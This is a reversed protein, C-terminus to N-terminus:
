EGGIAKYADSALGGIGSLDFALGVEVQWEPTYYTRVDPPKTDMGRPVSVRDGIKYDQPFPIARISGGATVVLGDAFRWGLRLNWQKFANGSTGTTLSPGGALLYKDQFYYGLLLSTSIVDTPNPTRQMEYIQDPGDAGHVPRFEPASMTDFGGDHSSGNYVGLGGSVEALLTFTGRRSPTLSVRAKVEKDDDRGTCETGACLAVTLKHDRGVSFIYARHELNSSAPLDTDLKLPTKHDEDQPRCLNSRMATSARLGAAIREKLAKHLADLDEETITESANKEEHLLGKFARGQFLKMQKVQHVALGKINSLGRKVNGMLPLLQPIGQGVITSFLVATTLTTREGQSEAFKIRQGYPIATVLLGHKSKTEAHEVPPTIRQGYDGHHVDGDVIPLSAVTVLRPARPLDLWRYRQVRECQSTRAAGDLPYTPKLSALLEQAKQATAVKRRDEITSENGILGLVRELSAITEDLASAEYCIAPRLLDDPSARNCEGDSLVTRAKRAAGKASELAVNDPRLFAVRAKTAFDQLEQGAHLGDREFQWLDALAKARYDVLYKADHKANDYVFVTILTSEQDPLEYTKNSEVHECAVISPDEGNTPVTQIKVLPYTGEFAFTNKPADRDIAIRGNQRVTFRAKPETSSRAKPETPPRLKRVITECVLPSLSEAVDREISIKLEAELENIRKPPQLSTSDPAAHLPSAPWQIAVIWLCVTALKMFAWRAGLARDRMMPIDAALQLTRM